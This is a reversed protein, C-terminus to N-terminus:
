DLVRVHIAEVMSVDKKKQERIFIPRQRQLTASVREFAEEWEKRKHETVRKIGIEALYEEIRRKKKM